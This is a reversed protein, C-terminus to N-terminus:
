LFLVNDSRSLLLHTLVYSESSPAPLRAKGRFQLTIEKIPTSETLYLAVHGSLRVPEVDVGVGKLVIHPSDLLIEVRPKDKDRAMDIDHNSPGSTQNVHPAGLNDTGIQPHIERPLPSSPRTLVFAM